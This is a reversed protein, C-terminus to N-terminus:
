LVKGILTPMMRARGAVGIAIQGHFLLRQRQLRQGDRHRRVIGAADDDGLDLANGFAAGEIGPLDFNRADHDIAHHHGLRFVM